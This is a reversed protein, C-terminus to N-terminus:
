SLRRVRSPEEDGPNAQRQPQGRLEMRDGAERQTWLSRVRRDRGAALTAHDLQLRIPAWKRAAPTLNTGARCLDRAISSSISRTGSIGVFCGSSYM